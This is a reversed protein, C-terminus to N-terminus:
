LGSFYQESNCLVCENCYTGDSKCINPGLDLLALNYTQVKEEPLMMRAFEWSEESEQDLNVGFVRGYVFVVNTDLIANNKGFAFCLTSNAAYPGVYPLDLLEEESNPVGDDELEKGIRVFASARRNHLGLPKLLNALEDVDARALTSLDPYRSLFENYIPEVKFVPTAGLLIEAILVEYPSDTNRWPFDRLNGNNAWDLLSEQFSEVESESPFQNM